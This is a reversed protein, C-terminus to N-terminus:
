KWFVTWRCSYNQVKIHVPLMVCKYLKGKTRYLTSKHVGHQETLVTNIFFQPM